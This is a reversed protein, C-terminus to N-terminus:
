CPLVPGTDVPRRSHRLSEAAGALRARPAAGDTVGAGVGSAMRRSARGPKVPGACAAYVVARPWRTVSKSRSRAHESRKVPLTAAIGSVTTRHGVRPTPTFELGHHATVSRVSKSACSHTARKESREELPHL